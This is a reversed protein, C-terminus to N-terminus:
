PLVPWDLKCNRPWHMAMPWFKWQFEPRKFDPKFDFTSKLSDVLRVSEFFTEAWKNACKLQFELAGSPLVVFGRQSFKQMKFGGM